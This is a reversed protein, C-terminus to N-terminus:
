QYGFEKFIVQGSQSLLYTQFEKCEEIKKSNKIIAIPYTIPKHTKSDIREVIKIKENNLTDTYYVFGAESNSSRVWALVEKVDKAYVMKDKIDNYINLNETAQKAYEGVPVSNPEGIAIHVVEKNLLDTISTINSSSPAILVLENKVLDAISEEILLEKKRLENVQKDGASIIIDCPAGQEIQQQLAGSGGYNIILEVDNNAKEYELKVKEMVEKTSSAASINLQIKEIDGKNSSCGVIFLMMSVSLILKLNRKM